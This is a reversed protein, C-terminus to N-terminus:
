DYIDEVTEAKRDNKKKSSHSEWTIIKQKWNKVKNGNSDVWGGTTFYNYFQKGDVNYKNDAIYKLVDNLSPPTFRKKEKHEKNKEERIEDQTTEDLRIKDLRSNSELLKKYSGDSAIKKIEPNQSTSVDLMEFLRLCMIKKSNINYQFIGERVCFKMIEEVRLTDIKFKVALTEADHHLEFDINDGSLRQSILEICAYYLGYGEIGYKQILKELKAEHISNSDHKFWKM